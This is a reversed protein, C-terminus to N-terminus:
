FRRDNVSTIPPTGPQGKVPELGARIDDSELSLYELWDYDSYREHHSNEKTPKSSKSSVSESDLATHPNISPVSVSVASNFATTM